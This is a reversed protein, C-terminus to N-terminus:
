LTVLTDSRPCDDGRVRIRQFIVQKVLLSTQRPSGEIGEIESLVLESPALFGAIVFAKRKRM